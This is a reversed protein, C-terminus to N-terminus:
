DNGNGFYKRLHPWWSSPLMKVAPTLTSGPATLLLPAMPLEGSSRSIQLKGLQVSSLVSLMTAPRQPASLLSIGSRPLNPLEETSCALLWGPLRVAQTSGLWGLVFWAGIAPVKLPMPSHSGQPDRGDQPLIIRHNQM